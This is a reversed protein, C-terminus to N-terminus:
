ASCWVGGGLSHQWSFGQHLAKDPAAPAPLHCLLPCDHACSCSMSTKDVNVQCLSLLPSSRSCWLEQLAVCAIIESVKLSHKHIVHQLQQASPQLPCGSCSGVGLTLSSVLSLLLHSAQPGNDPSWEPRLHALKANMLDLEKYMCAASALGDEPVPGFCPSSHKTVRVHGGALNPLQGPAVCALALAKKLSQVHLWSAQRPASSPQQGARRKGTGDAHDKSTGLHACAQQLTSGRHYSIDMSGCTGAELGIGWLIHHM